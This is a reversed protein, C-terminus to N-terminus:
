LNVVDGPATPAFVRAIPALKATQEGLRLFPIALQEQVHGLFHGSRPRTSRLCAVLGAPRPKANVVILFDRRSSRKWFKAPRVAAFDHPPHFKEPRMMFNFSCSRALGLM